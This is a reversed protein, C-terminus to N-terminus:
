DATVTVEYENDKMNRGKPVVALTYGMADLMELLVNVSINKQKIRKNILDSARGPREEGNKGVEKIGVARGLEAKSKGTSKMIAEIIEQTNM